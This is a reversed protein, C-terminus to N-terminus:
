AKRRAAQVAPLILGLMIGIIAIVVLTEILSAGKRKLMGPGGQASRKMFNVLGAESMWDPMMELYAKGGM